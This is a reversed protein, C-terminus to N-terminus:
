NYRLWNQGNEGDQHIKRHCNACILVCKKIEKLIKKKNNSYIVMKRILEIKKNPNKHHFDLCLPNSEGCILCSKGKKLKRYWIKRKEQWNKHYLNVKNRNKKAWENNYKNHKIKDM